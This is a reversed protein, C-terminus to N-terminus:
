YNLAKLKLDFTYDATMSIYVTWTQYKIGNIQIPYMQMGDIIPFDRLTFQPEGWTDPFALIYYGEFNEGTEITYGMTSLSVSAPAVIKEPTYISIDTPNQSAPQKFWYVDYGNALQAKDVSEWADGEGDANTDAWVFVERFGQGNNSVIVLDGLTTGALPRENLTAVVAANQQGKKADVILKRLAVLTDNFAATDVKRGLQQEFHLSDAIIQQKIVELASLDIESILMEIYDMRTSLNTSDLKLKEYIVTFRNEMDETIEKMLEELLERIEDNGEGSLLGVWNDGNFFMFAGKDTDFVLLSIASGDPRIAERQETTMRPILLGSSTSYVELKAFPNTAGDKKGILVGQGEANFFPLILLLISIYLIHRLM